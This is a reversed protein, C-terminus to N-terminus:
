GGAMLGDVSFTTLKISASRRLMAGSFRGAAFDADRRLTAFDAALRVDRARLNQHCRFFAALADRKRDFDQV